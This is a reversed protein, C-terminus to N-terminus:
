GSGNGSREIDRCKWIGHVRDTCVGAFAEHKKKVHKEERKRKIKLGQLSERCRYSYVTIESYIRDKYGNSDM